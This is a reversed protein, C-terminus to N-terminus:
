SEIFYSVACFIFNGMLSKKLLHSWICLKRCIQECRCFSQNISVNMKKAADEQLSIEHSGLYAVTTKLLNRFEGM